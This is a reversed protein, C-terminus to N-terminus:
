AVYATHRICVGRMGNNRHRIGYKRNTHRTDYPTHRIAYAFGFATHQIGYALHQESWAATQQIDYVTYATPHRIRLRIGDYAIHLYTM